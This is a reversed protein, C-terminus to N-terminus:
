GLVFGLEDLSIGEAALAERLVTAQPRETADAPPTAAECGGYASASNGIGPWSLSLYTEVCEGSATRPPGDRLAALYADWAAGGVGPEAASHWGANVSGFTGDHAISVYMWEEQPEADAGAHLPVGSALRDRAWQLLEPGPAGSIEVGGASLFLTQHAERAAELLQVVLPDEHLRSLLQEATDSVTLYVATDTASVGSIDPTAGPFVSAADSAVRLTAETLWPAGYRSDFQVRIPDSALTAAIAYGEFADSEAAGEIRAIVDHWVDFEISALQVDLGPSTAVNGADFSYVASEVGDIAALEGTLARLAADVGLREATIRQGEFVDTVFGCGALTAALVAAGATVVV